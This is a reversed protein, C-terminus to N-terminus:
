ECSSHIKPWGQKGRVQADALQMISTAMITFHNDSLDTRSDDKWGVGLVEPGCNRMYLRNDDDDLHDLQFGSQQKAMWQYLDENQNYRVNINYKCPIINWDKYM